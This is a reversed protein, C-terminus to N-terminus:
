MAANYGLISLFQACWDDFHRQSPFVYDCCRPKDDAFTERIRGKGRERLSKEVVDNRPSDISENDM